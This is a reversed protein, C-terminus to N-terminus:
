PNGRECGCLCVTNKKVKVCRKTFTLRKVDCFENEEAEEASSAAAAEESAETLPEAEASNEAPMASPTEASAEAAPPVTLIGDFAELQVSPNM